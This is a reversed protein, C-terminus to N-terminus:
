RLGRILDVTVTQGWRLPVRTAFRELEDLRAPSQWDHLRRQPIAAVFFDGAPMGAVWFSGSDGAVASVLTAPRMGTNVRAARDTPFVVVATAGPNSGDPARVVGAITPGQTTVTVILDSVDTGAPVDLPSTTTDRGRWTVSKILWGGVRIWYQGAEVAPIEFANPGIRAQPEM